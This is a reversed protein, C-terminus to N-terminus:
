DPKEEGGQPKLEESLLAQAGTTVVAAGAKLDDSEPVFWGEALPAELTVPKRVFRIEEPKSEKEAKDNKEAKEAKEAKESKADKEPKETKAPEAEEKKEEDERLYIWTAGAQRLIASSPVLFGAHPEGPMELWATLAMGPLLPFPPNEVRLIFAQAQTKPNVAAAPSIASATLPKEEHGFLLIEAHKPTESVSDGPLLDAQVLVTKASTLGDLLSKRGAADLSGLTEGWEMRARRKLGDVKIQDARFQAEATEVAKRSANEGAAQLKQTREHEARSAQLAVEAAALEEDLTFLPQPDLVQGLARRRPTLKTAALPQTKLGLVEIKEKTLEVGPEEEHEEGPTAHEPKEAHEGAEGAEKAERHTFGRWLPWALAGLVLVILLFHVLRKM